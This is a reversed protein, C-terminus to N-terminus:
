ASSMCFSGFKIYWDMYYLSIYLAKVANFASASVGTYCPLHTHLGHRTDPSARDQISMENETTGGSDKGGLSQIFFLVWEDKYKLSYPVYLFYLIIDGSSYKGVYTIPLLYSGTSTLMFGKAESVKAKNLLPLSGRIFDFKPSFICIIMIKQGFIGIDRDYM